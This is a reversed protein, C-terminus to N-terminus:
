KPLFGRPRGVHGCFRRVKRRESDKIKKGNKLVFEWTDKSVIVIIELLGKSTDGSVNHVLVASEQPDGVFYTHLEAVEFNFVPEVQGKDIVTEVALWNGEANRLEDGGKPEAAATFGKGRVYFPHRPTAYALTGGFSVEVLNRPEHHYVKAVVGSAIPGAPDKHCAARVRDGIEITEIM